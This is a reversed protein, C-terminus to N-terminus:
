AGPFPTRDIEDALGAVTQEFRAPDVRTVLQVDRTAVVGKITALVGGLPGDRGANLADAVTADLDVEYGALRPKIRYTKGAARLVVPVDTGAVRALRRHADASSAGGLSVGAVRTGPLAQQAYAVRLTLFLLGLVVFM